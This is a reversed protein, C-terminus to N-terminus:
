EIEGRMREKHKEILEQDADEFSVGQAKRMDFFHIIIEVPSLEWQFSCSEKTCIVQKALTMQVAQDQDEIMDNSYLRRWPSGCKRCTTM